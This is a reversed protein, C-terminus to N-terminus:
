SQADCPTANLHQLHQQKFFTLFCKETLYLVKKEIWARFYQEKTQLYGAKSCKFYLM